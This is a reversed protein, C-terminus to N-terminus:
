KKIRVFFNTLNSVYNEWTLKNDMIQKRYDREKAKIIADELNAFDGIKEFNYKFGEGNKNGVIKPVGAAMAEMYSLQCGAQKPPLSIFIKCENYFENMKEPRINEAIKVPINLKEGLKIIKEKDITETTKNIWGLYKRKLKLPSFEKVNVGNPILPCSFIKSNLIDATILHNRMIKGVLYQFLFEKNQSHGHFFCFHKKRYQFLFPLACSWDQTFLIDFKEKKVQKRIERFAKITSFCKLDDERSIVKVEYGEKELLPLINNIVRGVGGNMRILYILIKM